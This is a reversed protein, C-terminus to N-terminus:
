VNVDPVGTGFQENLLGIFEWELMKGDKDWTSDPLKVFAAQTLSAVDGRVVDSVTIVNQGWVAANGKQLNYMQSLQANTASTRLVRVTMKGLNSARLTHMLTGDAGMTALDKEEVMSTTIGEEAVGSGSGIQFQGGTGSISAQVNLFSYATM